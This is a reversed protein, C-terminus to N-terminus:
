LLDVVNSAASNSNTGWYRPITRMIFKGDKIECEYYTEKLGAKTEPVVEVWIERTPVAESFGEVMMEDKNFKYNFQYACGDFYYYLYSGLNRSGSELDVDKNKEKGEVLAKWIADYDAMLKIDVGLEEKFKAIVEDRKDGEWNDRIGRKAILPLALPSREFLGKDFQQELESAAYHTNTGPNKTNFNIELVGGKVSCGCYSFKNDAALVIRRETILDNFATVADAYQGEETFKKLNEVFSEFYAKACSGPCRKAWSDDDNAVYAYFQLFDAELKYPEGLIKSVTETWEPLNADFEDRIDKRAALPLKDVPPVVPTVPGPAM